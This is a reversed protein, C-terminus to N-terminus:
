KKRHPSLFNFREYFLINPSEIIHVDGVPDSGSLKLGTVVYYPRAIGDDHKLNDFYKVGKYTHEHEVGM